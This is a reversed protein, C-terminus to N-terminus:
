TDRGVSIRFEGSMFPLDDTSIWIGSLSAIRVGLLSASGTITFTRNIGKEPDVITMTGAGFRSGEDVQLKLKLKQDGEVLTIDVLGAGGDFDELKAETESDVPFSGSYEIPGRLALRVNVDTLLPRTVTAVTTAEIGPILLGRDPDFFSIKGNCKVPGGSIRCDSFALFHGDQTWSVRGFEFTPTGPRAPPSINKPKGGKSSILMLKSCAPGASYVIRTGDPSVVPACIQDDTTLVTRLFTVTSVRVLEQRTGVPGVAVIFSGDPSFAPDDASFETPSIEDTNSSGTALTYPNNTGPIDSELLLFDDMSSTTLGVVSRTSPDGIRQISKGDRDVIKAVDGLYGTPLPVRFSRLSSLPPKVAPREAVMAETGVARYVIASSTSNWSLSPREGIRIKSADAALVKQTGGEVPVTVLAGDSRVFAILDGTPAIALSGLGSPGIAAGNAVEVPNSAGVGSLVRGDATLYAVRDTPVVGPKDPDVTTSSSKESGAEGDDSPGAPTDAADPAEASSSTRQAADRAADDATRSDSGRIVLSLLAVVAFIAVIGGAYWAVEAARRPSKFGPGSM